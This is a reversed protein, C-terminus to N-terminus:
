KMLYYWLYRCFSSFHNGKSMSILQTSAAAIDAAISFSAKQGAKLVGLLSHVDHQLAKQIDLLCISFSCKDSHEFKVLQCLYNFPFLSHSKLFVVFVFVHYMHYWLAQVVEFQSLMFDKQIWLVTISNFMM